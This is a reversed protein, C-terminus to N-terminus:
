ADDDDVTDGLQDPGADRVPRAIVRVEAARLHGGQEADARGSGDCGDISSPSAPASSV